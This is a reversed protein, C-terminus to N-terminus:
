MKIYMINKYLTIYSVNKGDQESSGKTASGMVGKAGGAVASALGGTAAGVLGKGGSTVAGMLGQEGGKATPPTAAGSASAGKTVEVATKIGKAAAEVASGIADMAGGGMAAMAINKFNVSGSIEQTASSKTQEIMKTVTKELTSIAKFRSGTTMEEIFHTGFTEFFNAWKESFEAEILELNAHRSKFHSSLTRTRSVSHFREMLQEVARAFNKTVKPPNFMSMKYSM